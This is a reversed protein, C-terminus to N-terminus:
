RRGYSELHTIQRDGVSKVMTKVGRVEEGQPGWTPWSGITPVLLLVRPATRERSWWSATTSAPSPRMAANCSREDVEYLQVMDVFM